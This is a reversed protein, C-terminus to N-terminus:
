QQVKCYLNWYRSELTLLKMAEYMMMVSLYNTSRDRSM